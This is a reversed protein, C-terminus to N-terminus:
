LDQYHHQMVTVKGTVVFNLVFSQRVNCHSGANIGFFRIGIPISQHKLKANIIELTQVFLLM